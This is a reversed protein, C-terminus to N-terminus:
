PNNLDGIAEIFGETILWKLNEKSTADYIATGKPIHYATIDMNRQEGLSAATAYFASGIPNEALYQGIGAFTQGKNDRGDTEFPNPKDIRSREKDGGYRYFTFEEKTKNAIIHDILEKKRAPSLEDCFGTNIFIALTILAVIHIYSKAM